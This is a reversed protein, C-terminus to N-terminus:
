QFVPQGSPLRAAADDDTIGVVPTLAERAQRASCPEGDALVELLPRMMSEYDPIPVREVNAAAGGIDSL